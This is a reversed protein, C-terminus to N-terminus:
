EEMNDIDESEITSTDLFIENVEYGLDVDAVSGDARTYTYTMTTPILQIFTKGPLLTIEEGNMDLFVTRENASKRVWSGRIHQGNIFADMVGGGITSIVPRSANGNFYSSNVFQVIVNSAVIRENTAGDIQPEGNYSREYVKKDANYTYSPMYDNNDSDYSLEIKVASDMGETPTDSFKFAHNKPEYPNGDEDTPWAEAELVALNAVANHPSVRTSIRYLATSLASASSHTGNGNFMFEKGVDYTNFLDYISTGTAEQGGWFVFPCDWEQRLEVHHIRASRVAGVMEPHNDNFIATYRTHCPGWVISEYVIDALSLNLHPRAEASNSIQVAIPHYPKDSELGTTPSIGDPVTNAGFAGTNLATVSTISNNTMPAAVATSAILLIGVLCLIMVQKKNM